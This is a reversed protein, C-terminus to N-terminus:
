KVANRAEGDMEGVQEVFYTSRECNRANISEQTNNVLGSNVIRGNEHVLHM